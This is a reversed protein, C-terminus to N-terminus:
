LESLNRYVQVMRVMYWPPSPLSYFKPGVDKMMGFMLVVLCNSIFLVPHSFRIKKKLIIIM